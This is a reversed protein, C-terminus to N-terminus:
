DPDVGAYAYAFWRALTPDHQLASIWGQRLGAGFTNSDGQDVAEDSGALILRLMWRSFAQTRWIQPLRTRPRLAGDAGHELLECVLERCGACMRGHDVQRTTGGLVLHAM